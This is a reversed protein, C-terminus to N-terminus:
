LRQWRWFLHRRTARQLKFRESIRLGEVWFLEDQATAAVILEHRRNRLIKQNTFWDQLKVPEGMGIPQFRDGPQWHRLVVMPGVADADFYERGPAPRIVPQRGGVGTRWQVRVQDFVAEGTGESLSITMRNSAFRAQPPHQELRVIGAADRVAFTIEGAERVINPDLEGSGPGVAIPRNQTLRLQEVLVFDAAIGAELLQLQVVRRQM